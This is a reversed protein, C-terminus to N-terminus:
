ARRPGMAPRQPGDLVAQPRHRYPCVSHERSGRCIQSINHSGTRRALHAIPPAPPRGEPCSSLNRRRGQARQAYSATTRADRVHSNVTVSNNSTLPGVRAICTCPHVLKATKKKTKKKKTKNVKTKKMRCRECAKWVRKHRADAMSHTSQSDSPIPSHIHSHSMNTSSRKTVRHAPKTSKAGPSHRKAAPPHPKHQGDLPPSPLSHEM